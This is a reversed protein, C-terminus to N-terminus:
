LQVHLYRRLYLLTVSLRGENLARVRGFRRKSFFSEIMNSKLDASLLRLCSSPPSRVNLFFASGRQVPVHHIIVVLNEVNMPAVMRALHAKWFERSIDGSFSHSALATVFLHEFQDNFDVSYERIGISSRFPRCRIHDLRHSKPRCPANTEGLEKWLEVSVSSEITGAEIVVAKAIICTKAGATETISSTRPSERLSERELAILFGCYPMSKLVVRAM